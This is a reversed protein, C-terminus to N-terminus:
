FKYYIIRCLIELLALNMLIDEVGKLESLNRLRFKFPPLIIVIGHQISYEIELDIIDDTNYIILKCKLM